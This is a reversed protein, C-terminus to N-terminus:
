SDVPSAFYREPPRDRPYTRVLLGYPILTKRQETVWEVEEASVHPCLDHRGQQRFNMTEAQIRFSGPKQRCQLVVQFHLNELAAPKAYFRLGAYNITPSTYNLRDTRGACNRSALVTGDPLTDGPMLFDGNEVIAKAVDWRAGHFSVCWSRFVDKAFAQPPVKLGFRVWGRPVVYPQPGDNPITDPWRPLYCNECYCRDHGRELLREDLCLSRLVTEAAVYVPCHSFASAQPKAELAEKERRLQALEQQAQALESEIAEISQGDELKRRKAGAAPTHSDLVRKLEIGQRKLQAVIQHPALVQHPPQPSLLQPQQAQQQQQQQRPSHLVAPQAVQLPPQQQQLPQPQQPPQQQQLAQQPPNLHRQQQPQACAHFLQQALQPTEQYQALQPTEQYQLAQQPPPPYEPQQQPQVPQVPQVWHHQAAPLDWRHQVPRLPSLEEPQVWHLLM